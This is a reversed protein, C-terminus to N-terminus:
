NIYPNAIKVINFTGDPNVSRIYFFGNLEIVDQIEIDYDHIYLLPPRYPYFIENEPIPWGYEDYDFRVFFLKDEQQGFAILQENYLLLQNIEANKIRGLNMDYDYVDSVVGVYAMRRVTDGSGPYGINLAIFYSGDPAAIIDDIRSPIDALWYTQELNASKVVPTGFVYTERYKWILHGNTGVFHVKGNHYLSAKIETEGYKWPPTIYYKYFTPKNYNELHALSTYRGKPDYLKITFRYEPSGKVYATYTYEPTTLVPSVSFSLTIDADATIIIDSTIDSTPDVLLQIAASEMTEDTQEACSFLFVSIIIFFIRLM